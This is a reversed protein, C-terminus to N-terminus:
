YTQKQSRTNLNLLNTNTSLETLIKALDFLGRQYHPVIKKKEFHNM